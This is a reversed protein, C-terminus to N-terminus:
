QVEFERDGWLAREVVLAPVLVLVQGVVLALALVLVLVQGVVPVEPM